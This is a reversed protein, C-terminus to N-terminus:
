AARNRNALHRCMKEIGPTRLAVPFKNIDLAPVNVQYKGLFNRVFELINQEHDGFKRSCHEIIFREPADWFTVTPNITNPSRSFDSTM